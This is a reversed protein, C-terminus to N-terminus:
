SKWMQVLTIQPLHTNYFHFLACLLANSIAFHEIFPFPYINKYTGGSISLKETRWTGEKKFNLENPGGGAPTQGPWTATKSSVDDLLCECPLVLVTGARWWGSAGDSILYCRDPLVMVSCTGPSYLKQRFLQHKVQTKSTSQIHPLVEETNWMEVNARVESYGPLWQSSPDQVVPSGQAHPKHEERGAGPPTASCPM